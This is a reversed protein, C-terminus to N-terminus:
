ATPCPFGIEQALEWFPWQARREYKENALAISDDFRSCIRKIVAQESPTRGSIELPFLKKRGEAFSPQRRYWDIIRGKFLQQREPPLGDRRRCAACEEMISFEEELLLLDGAQLYDPPSVAADLIDAMAVAWEVKGCDKLAAHFRSQYVTGAERHWDPYTFQIARRITSLDAEAVPQRHQDCLGTLCAVVQDATRDENPGRDRLRVKAKGDMSPFPQYAQIWDHGVAALGGLVQEHESADCAALLRVARGAVSVLSHRVSHYYQRDPYPALEHRTLIKVAEWVFQRQVEPSFEM